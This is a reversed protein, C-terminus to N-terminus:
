TIQCPDGSDTSGLKKEEPKRVLGDLSQVVVTVKFLGWAKDSLKQVIQADNVWIVGTLADCVARELKDLDPATTPYAPADERLVGAYRGTRYHSKPRPKSFAVHLEVAGSLLPGQYAMSAAYAVEQRWALLKPNMERMVTIPRGDKTIPQGNRGRLIHQVKSGQTAPKGIVHFVIPPLSM